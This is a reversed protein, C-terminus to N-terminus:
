CTDCRNEKRRQSKRRMQPIVIRCVPSGETEPLLGMGPALSREREAYPMTDFSLVPNESVRGGLHIGRRYHIFSEYIPDGAVTSRDELSLVGFFYIHHLSGKSIINELFPRLDVRMQDLRSVFDVLDALFIFYPVEKSLISFIEQDSCGEELLKQKKQNRARFVPVLAEFFQVYEEEKEAVRLHESQEYGAWEGEGHHLLGIMGGKKRASELCVKLFNTKGTRANGFITYCYIQNLPIRYIAGSRLDYGIPLGTNEGFAKQVEEEKEFASWSPEKPIEPIKEARSEKWEEEMKRCSKKIVEMREYDDKAEVALAAQFELMRGELLALGRGRVGQEPLVEPQSGHLLEAYSYKDPLQICLVQGMTEFLRAPIEKMGVGNGSIVLYIGYNAGEKGMRIMQEHYREKTKEQFAGYNDV